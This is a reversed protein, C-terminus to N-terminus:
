CWRLRAKKGSDTRAASGMCPVVHEQGERNAMRIILLLVCQVVFWSKIFSVQDVRTITSSGPMSSSIIIGPMGYGAHNM